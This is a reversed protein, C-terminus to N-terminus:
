TLLHLFQRLFFNLIYSQKSIVLMLSFSQSLPSILCIPESPISLATHTYSNQYFYGPCSTNPNSDHYSKDQDNELSAHIQEVM